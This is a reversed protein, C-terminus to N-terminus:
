GAPGGAVGPMGLAAVQKLAERYAKPHLRFRWPISRWPEPVNNLGVRPGRVVIDDTLCGDFEFFLPADERCLDVGHLAGTIDLARCLKAPGDTWRAVPQGARRQAMYTLGEVPLLARVLVAAPFGERETVVNFLWHMGYNFYVYAHGPPGYMVETRRTRGARAHCGADTEGIYAETEVVIGAVRRGHLLRVLRTGLMERAVDLTGRAFFARPVRKGQQPHRTWWPFTDLPHGPNGNM